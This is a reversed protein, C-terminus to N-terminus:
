DTGGVAADTEELAVDETTNKPDPTAVNLGDSAKPESLAIQPIPNNVSSLIEDRILDIKKDLTVRREAGDIWDELELRVPGTTAQASALASALDEDELSKGMNFLHGPNDVGEGETKQISVVGSFAKRAWDWGDDPQNSPSNARSTLSERMADFNSVLEDKTPAGRRAIDKTESINSNGPM